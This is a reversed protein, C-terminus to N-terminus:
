DQEDEYSSHLEKFEAPTLGSILFERQELSLDPMANQILNGRLWDQLDIANVDVSYVENTVVCMKRRRITNDDVSIYNDTKRYLPEIKM